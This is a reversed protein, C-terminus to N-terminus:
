QISELAQSLKGERERLGQYKAREKEVVEEPARALFDARSLKEGLWSLEEKVKALERTLREREIDVDIIGQLPVYIEIGHLVATASGAPRAMDATMTLEDIDGVSTVYSRFKELLQSRDSSAKICVAVRTSPPIKMLSRINRISTVIDQIFSMDHEAQQDIWMQNASPYPSKVITDGEHLLQQWLEETIFPIFPHMLRLSTEFVHLLIVRTTEREQNTGSLRLKAIELYWDCFEHWFFQYLGNAADNFRYETLGRRTDAIVGQLRSLIWRDAQDLPLSMLDEPRQDALSFQLACFRFANWIKNMFNRYGQIREESLRIDRGQGALAALTFRLADTGYQDMVQLPDIVNGRSKSMKQGQADRILAHIYVDHFPVEGRFKLGLMLMRAVWFFLIDFSTVLVSTPYYRRLEPTDDPWGLTSFPWLGSSFWTDLVDEDQHLDAGQCHACVQPPTETVTVGECAGCHWAPIRHGWWIQRSVCWDRINLMWEFYTSEWMSPVLRIRGSRVAEIAPEALPQMRVFWQRSVLPEVVTRCRYCLGVRHRYEELKDILGLGRMDEVIRRRCEFRDLGEYRGAQQNMKGDFGIVQRIELGHRRGIEFDQPDHAPTVKVVGTGFEPDVAPDALVKISIEGEVSPITLTQGVYRQYREDAPHVALATDGLKTEPRVTALTLPGYKIYYLTGAREEYEVELDSLATMCRPCWHIIYDGRYMHGEHYLTVFVKRVARSLGEDLTFRERSWDCSAGLRMLQRVITRGSEERWQWVRELFRERGYAHRNTGERALQQEVVWQTAIGAHDTGPLWLTNYGDMRKWRVLIDQLTINLAHGLHLSGTINPPPIVICFPDAPAQVDAQMVGREVWARYWREETQRPDYRTALSGQM